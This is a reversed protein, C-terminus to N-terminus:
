AFELCRKRYHLYNELSVEEPVGHDCTPLYGGRKQLIPFIRDVMRDIADKGQALIRKDVGGGIRLEPYERAIQVVDCGSAVEFPSMHIMGLQQYLAIVPVCYGDTDIQLHITREPATKRQRAKMNDLLQGYYALVMEDFVIRLDAIREVPSDNGTYDLVEIRAVLWAREVSKGSGLQVLTLLDIWSEISSLLQYPLHDGRHRKDRETRRLLEQKEDAARLPLPVVKAWDIHDALQDPIAVQVGEIPRVIRAGHVIRNQGIVLRPSIQDHHQVLQPLALQREEPVGCFPSDDIRAIPLAPKAIHAPRQFLPMSLGHGRFLHGIHDHRRM